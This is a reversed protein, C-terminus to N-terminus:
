ASATLYKEISKAQADWGGTNDKYAKARYALSLRDFGSETVTLLTGTQTEELRFEVLTSAEGEPQEAGPIWRWSFYAPPEMKEVTVYFEIHRYGPHTSRLKARRGTEFGGEVFEVGFWAGFEAPNVIARWVRERPAQLEIRKEISDPIM